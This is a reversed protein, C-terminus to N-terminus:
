KEGLLYAGAAVNHSVSLHASALPRQLQARVRATTAYRRDRDLSKLHFCVWTDPDTDTAAGLMSWGLRQRVVVRVGFSGDYYQKFPSQFWGENQSRFHGLANISVDPIWWSDNKKPQAIAVQSPLQLSNSVKMELDVRHNVPVALSVSATGSNAIRTNLKTTMARAEGDDWGVVIEGAIPDYSDAGALALEGILDIQSPVLRRYHQNLHGNPNIWRVTGFLRRVSYWAKSFDYEASAIVSFPRDTGILPRVQTDDAAAAAAATPLRTCSEPGVILTDVRGSLDLQLMDAKQKKNNAATPTITETSTNSPNERLLKSLQSSKLNLNVVAEVVVADSYCLALVVLCSRRIWCHRKM